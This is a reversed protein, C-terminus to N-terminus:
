QPVPARLRGIQARRRPVPLRRILDAAPEAGLESRLLARYAEYSRRAEVWNGEALHAEILARQASERLPEAGVATLAAEVAEACRSSARLRESVAEIAHLMRQRLREREMLLWDDYWGPLLDLADGWWPAIVLDAPEETRQILRAAWANIVSLDVTVAGSVCLTWKDAHILEVPLTRLRWLASRLNGAARADDGTPWLTGAACRREIRGTRLAVFVLLRKSGEPVEYRRGGLSLCPGGALHLVPTGADALVSITM